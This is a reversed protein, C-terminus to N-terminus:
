DDEEIVLNKTKIKKSASSPVVKKKPKSDDGSLFRTREEKYEFYIKKLQDLETSWMVHIPIKKVVELEDKKTKHDKFLKDVNEETVIDMPMKVLYKYDADNDIMDYGKETM